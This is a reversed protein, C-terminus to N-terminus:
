SVLAFDGVSIATPHNSLGVIAIEVPASVSGAGDADYYVGGNNADYFLYDTTSTAVSANSFNASDVSSAGTFATFVSTSLQIQHTNGWFNNITVPPVTGLQSNLLVTPRMIEIISNDSSAVYINGADDVAIDNPIASSSIFSIAHPHGM